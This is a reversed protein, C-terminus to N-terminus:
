YIRLNQKQRRYLYSIRAHCAAMYKLSEKWFKCVMTSTTSLSGGVVHPKKILGTYKTNKAFSMCYADDLYKYLVNKNCFHGIFLSYQFALNINIAINTTM